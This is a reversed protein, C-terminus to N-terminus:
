EKIAFGRFVSEASGPDHTKVQVPMAFTKVAEDMIGKIQSLREPDRAFIAVYPGPLIRHILEPLAPSYVSHSAFPVNARPISFPSLSLASYGDLQQLYQTFSFTAQPYHPDYLYRDYSFSDLLIVDCEAVQESLDITALEYGRWTAYGAITHGACFRIGQPKFRDFLRILVERTDPQTLVYDHWLSLSFNRALAIVSMLLFIGLAIQWLWLRIPKIWRDLGEIISAVGYASFIAVLPLLPLAHREFSLHSSWLIASYSLIFGVVLVKYPTWRWTVAWRTAGVVALVMLLIGLTNPFTVLLNYVLANDTYYGLQGVRVKNADFAFDAIFEKWDLFIYPNTLAFVITAVLGCLFMGVMSKRKNSLALAVIAMPLLLIAASYKASTALGVMLGALLWDRRRNTEFAQNALVLSLLIFTTLPIDVTPYHSQQVWFLTTATIFAGLLAVWQIRFLRYAVMYIAVIGIVAFFVTVWQAPLVFPVGGPLRDSRYMAEFEAVSHVAGSQLLVLYVIAYVM